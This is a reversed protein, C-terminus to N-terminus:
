PASKPQDNVGRSLMGVVEDARARVALGADM